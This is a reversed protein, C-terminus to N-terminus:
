VAESQAQEGAVFAVDGPVTRLPGYAVNQRAYWAVQVLGCTAHGTREPHDLWTAAASSRDSLESLVGEPPVRGSSRPAHFRKSDLLLRSRVFTPVALLTPLLLCIM